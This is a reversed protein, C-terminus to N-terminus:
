FKRYNKYIVASIGTIVWTFSSLFIQGEPTPNCKFSAAKNEISLFFPMNVCLRIIALNVSLVSFFSKPSVQYVPCPQKRYPSDVFQVFCSAM